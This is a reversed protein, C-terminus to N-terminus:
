ETIKLVIGHYITQEAVTAKGFRFKSIIERCCVKILYIKNMISVWLLPILIYKTNQCNTNWRTQIKSNKCKTRNTNQEMQIKNCKYKTVNTNQQTQIKNCKNETVKTNQGTKMQM